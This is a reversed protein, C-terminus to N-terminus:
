QKRILKLDNTENSYNKTLSEMIILNKRNNALKAINRIITEDLRGLADIFYQNSLMIEISKENGSLISLLFLKEIEQDQLQNILEPYSFILKLNDLKNHSILYLVSAQINRSDLCDLFNSIILQIIDNQKYQTAKFLCEVVNEKKLSKKFNKLFFKVLEFNEKKFAITFLEPIDRFYYDTLNYLDYLSYFLENNSYFLSHEVINYGNEDTLDKKSIYHSSLIKTIIYKDNNKVANFLIKSLQEHLELLKHRKENLDINTRQRIDEINKLLKEM